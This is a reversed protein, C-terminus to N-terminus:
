GDLGLKLRAILIKSSLVLAQFVSNSFVGFNLPLSITELLPNDFEGASSRSQMPHPVARVGKPMYAAVACLRHHLDSTPYIQCGAVGM